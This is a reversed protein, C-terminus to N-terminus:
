CMSGVPTEVGLGRFKGRGRTLVEVRFGSFGVGRSPCIKRLNVCKQRELVYFPINSKQMSMMQRDGETLM